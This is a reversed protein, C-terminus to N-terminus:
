EGGQGWERPLGPVRGTVVARGLRRVPWACTSGGDSGLRRVLVAHPPVPLGFSSLQASLRDALTGARLVAHSEATGRATRGSITAAVTLTLLVVAGVALVARPRHAGRAGSGAGPM